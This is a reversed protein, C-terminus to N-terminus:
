RIRFTEHSVNVSESYHQRKSIDKNNAMNDCKMHVTFNDKICMDGIKDM